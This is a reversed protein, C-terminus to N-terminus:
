LPTGDPGLALIASALGKIGATGDAGARAGQTPAPGGKGFNGPDGGKQAITIGDHAAATVAAVGDVQPAISAWLIGVSLGGAGGGGGGGGGGAGGSGGSCHTQSTTDPPIVNGIQGGGGGGGNGGKGATTASFRSAEIVVQSNFAALALSSGGGGGGPGAAGGCGGATGGGGGGLCFGGGDVHTCPPAGVGGGGGQGIGGVAGSAGSEPQWGSDSLIGVHQAGAGGAGRDGNSGQRGQGGASCAAYAAGGQGMTTDDPIGHTTPPQGQGGPQSIDPSGSGGYSALCQGNIATSFTDGIRAPQPPGPIPGNVPQDQGANGTAASFATRHLSIKSNIVLGAISSAGPGTPPAAVFDLDFLEVGNAGKVVLPAVADITAHSTTYTWDACSLGGYISVPATLTVSEAYQGQCVYLRTKFGQLKSLGAAITKVPAGKSGDNTDAGQISSVFIGAAPDICRADTAPDGGCNGVVITGKGGDPGDSSSSSSGCRVSALACVAVTLAVSSTRSLVIFANKRPSM